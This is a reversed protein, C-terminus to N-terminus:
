VKSKVLTLCDGVKKLAECESVLVAKGPKLDDVIKQFYNKLARKHYLGLGLDFKLDSKDNFADTDFGSIDSLALYVHYRIYDESNEKNILLNILAKLEESAVSNAFDKLKDLDQESVSLHINHKM